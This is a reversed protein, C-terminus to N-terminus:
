IKVGNLGKLSGKKVRRQKLRQEVRNHDIRLLGCTFPVVEFTIEFSVAFLLCRPPIM